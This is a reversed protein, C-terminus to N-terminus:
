SRRRDSGGCKKRSVVHVSDTDACRRGKIEEVNLILGCSSRDNDRRTRRVQTSTDDKLIGVACTARLYRREIASQCGRGDCTWRADLARTM